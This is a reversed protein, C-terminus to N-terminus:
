EQHFDSVDLAQNIYRFYHMEGQFYYSNATNYYGGCLTNFTITGFNNMDGSVTLLNSDQYMSLTKTSADYVVAIHTKKGDTSDITADFQKSNNAFRLRIKAGEGDPACYLFGGSNSGSGLVIGGNTASIVFEITFSQDPSITIPDALEVGNEKKNKDSTVTLVGNEVAGIASFDIGNEVTADFSFELQSVPNETPIDDSPYTNDYQPDYMSPEMGTKIYVATNNGADTGVENYAGQYYHYDDKMRDAGFGALMASVLVAKDYSKCLETQAKIIEAHRAPNGNANGIRVVACFEVGAEAVMEEIIAKLNASYTDASMGVGGDTEGQCWVMFDNAITYGNAELWERAANHRAIAENLADGDPAWFDTGTGGKSCSVAVVPVNRAAYYANVFASVMSGTKSSESVVGRNENVGFPETILYLKTPDSVARFEYGHGESVTPAQAAVGRGAMNSQGMFMVLDVVKADPDTTNDGNNDATPVEGYIWMGSDQATENLKTADGNAEMAKLADEKSEYVGVAAGNHLAVFRGDADYVMYETVTGNNEILYNTYANKAEQMAKSDQANQIINSFTPVLVTALVAIVAIVIVLEVITFAKRKNNRKM